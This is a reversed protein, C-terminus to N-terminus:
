QLYTVLIFPKVICTITKPPLSFGPILKNSVLLCQAIEIQDTNCTISPSSSGMYVDWLREILSHERPMICGATQPVVHSQSHFAASHIDM